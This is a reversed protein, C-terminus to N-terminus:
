QRVTQEVLHRVDFQADGHAQGLKAVVIFGRAEPMGPPGIIAREAGHNQGRM